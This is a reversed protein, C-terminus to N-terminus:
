NAYARMERAYGPRPAWTMAASASRNGERWTYRNERDATYSATRWPAPDLPLEPRADAHQACYIGYADSYAGDIGSLGWVTSDLDRWTVFSAPAHCTDCTHTEIGQLIEVRPILPRTLRADYEHTTAREAIPTYTAM